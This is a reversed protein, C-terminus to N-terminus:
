NNEEIVIRKTPKNRVKELEVANKGKANELDIARKNERDLNGQQMENVRAEQEARKEASTKRGNRADLEDWAEQMDKEFRERNKLIRESQAEMASIIGARDYKMCVEYMYKRKSKSYLKRSKLVTAGEIVGKAATVVDNRTKEDLSSRDGVTTEDMYQNLGYRVYQEIKVQLDATAQAKAANLALQANASTAQGFGRIEGTGEEYALEEIPSLQIEEYDDQAFAVNSFLPAFAMLLLMGFSKMKM